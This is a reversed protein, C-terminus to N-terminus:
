AALREQLAKKVELLQAPLRHALMSFLEDHLKFEHLWAARDISTIREYRDEPFALGEWHLDPYRPSIGFVHEAGQARGQAREVIWCLVRM